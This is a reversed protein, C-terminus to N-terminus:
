RPPLYFCCSKKFDLSIGDEALGHIETIKMAKWPSFLKLQLKREQKKNNNNKTKNQKTKKQSHM